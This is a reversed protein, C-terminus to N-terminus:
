AAPGPPEPPEPTLAVQIAEYTTGNGTDGRTESAPWLLVAEAAAERVLASDIESRTEPIAAIPWECVFALSGAPPLPTVWFDQRWRGEGGGGGRPMLAPGEPPQDEGATRTPIRGDINTAKRGDSFQIGFRVLEPDVGGESSRRRRRPHHFFFPHVFEEDDLNHRLELDLEFGDVSATLAPIWLAAKDSRGIVLNLAITKGIM